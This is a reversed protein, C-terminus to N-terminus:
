NKVARYYRVIRAYVETPTGHVDELEKKVSAIEAEIQELTRKSQLTM